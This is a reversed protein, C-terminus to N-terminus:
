KLFTIVALTTVIGCVYPLVPPIPKKNADYFVSLGICGAAVAVLTARYAVDNLMTSPDPVTRTYVLFTGFPSRGQKGKAKTTVSVM